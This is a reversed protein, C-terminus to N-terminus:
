CLTCMLLCKSKTLLPPAHVVDRGDEMKSEDDLQGCIEEMESAAAFVLEYSSVDHDIEVDGCDIRPRKRAPEPEVNDTYDHDSGAIGGGGSGSQQEDVTASSDITGGGAIAVRHCREAAHLLVELKKGNRVESLGRAEFFADYRNKLKKSIWLNLQVDGTKKPGRKPKELVDLHSQDVRFLDEM